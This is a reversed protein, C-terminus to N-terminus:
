AKDPMDFVEFGLEGVLHSLGEKGHEIKRKVALDFRGSRTKRGRIMAQPPIVAPQPKSEARKRGCGDTFSQSASRDGACIAPSRRPSCPIGSRVSSPTSREWAPAIPLCPIAPLLIRAIPVPSHAYGLCSSLHPMINGSRAYYTNHSISHHDLTKRNSIM